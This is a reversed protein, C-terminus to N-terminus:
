CRHFERRPGKDGIAKGSEDRNPLQILLRRDEGLQFDTANASGDPRKGEWWVTINGEQATVKEVRLSRTGGKHFVVALENASFTYDTVEGCWRGLLDGLSLDGASSAGPVLVAVALAFLFKRIMLSAEGRHSLLKSEAEIGPYSLFAREARRADIDFSV